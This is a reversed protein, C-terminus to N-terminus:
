VSHIRFQKANEDVGTNFGENFSVFHIGYEKKFFKLNLKVRCFM